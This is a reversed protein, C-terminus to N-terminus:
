RDIGQFGVASLQELSFAEVLKVGQAPARVIPLKEIASDPNSASATAIFV